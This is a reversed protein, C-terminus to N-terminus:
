REVEASAIQSYSPCYSSLMKAYASKSIRIISPGKEKDLCSSERNTEKVGNESFFYGLAVM